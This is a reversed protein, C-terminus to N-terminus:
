RQNIFRRLDTKDSVWNKLIDYGERLDERLKLVDEVILKYQKSISKKSKRPTAKNKSAIKIAAQTRRGETKAHAMSLGGNSHQLSWHLRYVLFNPM